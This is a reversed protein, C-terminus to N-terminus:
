LVIIYLVYLIALIFKGITQYTAKVNGTLTKVKVIQTQLTGTSSSASAQTKFSGSLRPSLVHLLVFL